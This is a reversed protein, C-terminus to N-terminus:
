VNSKKKYIAYAAATGLLFWIGDPVPMQGPDGPLEDDKMPGNIINNNQTIVTNTTAAMTLDSTSLNTSNSEYGITVNNLVDNDNMAAHQRGSKIPDIENIEVYRHQRDRKKVKSRAAFTPLTFLAILILLFLKTKSM